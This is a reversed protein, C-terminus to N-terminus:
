KRQLNYILYDLCNLKDRDAHLTKLLEKRYEYLLKMQGCADGSAALATFRAIREKDCGADALNAIINEDAAM